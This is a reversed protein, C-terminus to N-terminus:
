LINYMSKLFKYVFIIVSLFIQRFNYFVFLTALFFTVNETYSTESSVSIKFGLFVILIVIVIYLFMIYISSKHQIRLVDNSGDLSILDHVLDNIKKKDVSMRANLDSLDKEKTNITNIYTGTKSESKINNIKKTIEGILSMIDNNLDSLRILQKKREEVGTQNIYLAHAEKYKTILQSLHEDYVNLGILTRETTTGEVITM